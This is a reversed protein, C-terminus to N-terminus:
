GKIVVVPKLKAVIKGLGVGDSVKVVEDVDKYVDPAEELFSKPSGVSM